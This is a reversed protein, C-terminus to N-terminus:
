AQGAVLRISQEVGKRAMKAYPCIIEAEAILTEAEARAMGPLSVDVSLKLAFLGDEPDRGITATAVLGLDAPLRLRQRTAALVLSGHFCAAFGAAFLQEPNTGGGKGGMEVPMRLQVDLAGDPSYAHGSSRGHGTEGGDVTVSASYLPLFVAGEYKELLSAPATAQQM